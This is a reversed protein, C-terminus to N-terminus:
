TNVCASTDFTIVGLIIERKELLFFNPICSFYPQFCVFLLCVFYVGTTRIGFFRENSKVVVKLKHRFMWSFERKSVFSAGGVM